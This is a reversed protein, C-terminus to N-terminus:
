QYRQSPLRLDVKAELAARLEATLNALPFVYEQPCPLKKCIIIFSSSRMGTPTNPSEVSGISPTRTSSLVAVDPATFDTSGRMGSYSLMQQRATDPETVTPSAPPIDASPLLFFDAM